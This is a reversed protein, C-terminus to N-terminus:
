SCLDSNKAEGVVQFWNGVNLSLKTTTQHTNCFFLGVNRPIVKNWTNIYRKIIHAKLTTLLLHFNWACSSTEHPNTTTFIRRNGGGGSGHLLPNVKQNRKKTSGRVRYIRDQSTLDIAKAHKLPQQQIKPSKHSFDHILGKLCHWFKDWSVVRQSRWCWKCCTWDVICIFFTKYYPIIGHSLGM